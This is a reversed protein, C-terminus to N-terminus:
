QMLKQQEDSTTSAREAVQYSLLYSIFYQLVNISYFWVSLAHVYALFM